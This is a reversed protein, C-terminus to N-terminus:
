PHSVTVTYTFATATGNAVATAISGNDYVRV